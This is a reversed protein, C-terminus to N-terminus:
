VVEYSKPGFILDMGDTFIIIVLTEDTFIANLLKFIGLTSFYQSKFIIILDLSAINLSYVRIAYLFYNLYIVPKVIM